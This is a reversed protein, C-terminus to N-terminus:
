PAPAETSYLATYLDVYQMCRMVDPFLVPLFHWWFSVDKCILLEKFSCDGLVTRDSWDDIWEVAKRQIDEAPAYDSLLRVFIDGPAIAAVAGDGAILLRDADAGFADLVRLVGPLEDCTNAIAIIKGNAAM